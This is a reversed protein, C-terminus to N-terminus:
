VITETAAQGCFHQQPGRRRRRIARSYGHHWGIPQHRWRLFEDLPSFDSWGLRYLCFDFFNSTLIRARLSAPVVLFHSLTVISLCNSPVLDAFRMLDWFTFPSRAWSHELIFLLLQFHWLLPPVDDGM